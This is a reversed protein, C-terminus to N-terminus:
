EKRTRHVQQNKVHIFHSNFIYARKCIILYEYDFTHCMFFDICKYLDSETRQHSNSSAKKYIFEIPIPAVSFKILKNVNRSCGKIASQVFDLRDRGLYQVVDLHWLFQFSIQQILARWTRYQQYIHNWQQGLICDITPKEIQIKIKKVYELRCWHATQFINRPNTSKLLFRWQSWIKM